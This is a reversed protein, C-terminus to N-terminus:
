GSCKNYVGTSANISLWLRLMEKAYQACETRATRWKNKRWKIKGREGRKCLNLIPTCKHSFASNQM